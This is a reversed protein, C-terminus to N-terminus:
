LMLERELFSIGNKIQEKNVSYYLRRSKRKITVLSAGFLFDMHYSVTATTIGLQEAIEQGYSEKKILIKIIDFRTKDSLVKYINLHKDIDNKNKEEEVYRKFILGIFIHVSGDGFNHSSILDFISYNLHVEDYQKLNIFTLYEDIFDIGYQSINKDIWQVFEEYVKWYRGKLEEYLPLYEKILDSFKEIYSKPDRILSILYWKEDGEFDIKDIKELVIELYSEEKYNILEEFELQEFISIRLDDESQQELYKFYEDLNKSKAIFTPNIFIDRTKTEMNVFYKAKYFVPNELLKKAYMEIEDDLELNWKEEMQIKFYNHNSIIVFSSLIGYLDNFEKNIILNM